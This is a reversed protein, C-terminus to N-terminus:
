GQGLGTLAEVAARARMVAAATGPEDLQGDGGRLLWQCVRGALSPAAFSTGSWVAFGSRYDDPDIASRRLGGHATTFVPQLGGQFTVPMTSVVGAGPQWTTVWPGFNSFLAVTGDSPNSAGVCVLPVRDPFVERGGAHPALASPYMPRTTADNGAATVVVVGLRGLEDLVGALAPEYAADFAADYLEPYYGMSLVLVDIARGGPDGYRDRRVLELLDVLAAMLDSEVVVGDPNVVRIALIDADPCALIVLGAMFTGHGAVADAFDDRPLLNHAIDGSLEPDILPDALGIPRGDLEVGTQVVYDLWPHRGCGNDLLAVVPRRGELDLDSRRYPAPGLWAVSQRGGSGQRAYNEILTEQRTLGGLAPEPTPLADPQEAQHSQQHAQGRSKRFRGLLKPGARPPIPAPAPHAPLQTAIVSHYPVGVVGVSAFLLHDLGVGALAFSDGALSRAWQLISWADVPLVPGEGSPEFRLRRVGGERGGADDIELRYGLREAARSLPELTEEVSEAPVLLRNVVYATNRLWPQGPLQLAQHPDLVRANYRSLVEASPLPPDYDRFKDDAMEEGWPPLVM